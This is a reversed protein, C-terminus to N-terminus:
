RAEATGNWEVVSPVLSPRIRVDEIPGSCTVCVEVPETMGWAAFSAIETQELPRQYGPWVQNVPQASVRARHTFVPQGNVTLKYDLCPQEEVPSPYITLNSQTPM